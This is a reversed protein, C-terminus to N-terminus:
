TAVAVCMERTFIVACRKLTVMQNGKKRNLKERRDLLLEYYVTVM